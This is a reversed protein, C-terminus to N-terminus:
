LYWSRTVCLFVIVYGLVIGSYVQAPSHDGDLLRATGLLGAALVATALTFPGVSGHLLLLASLAGLLGGIGVMHASIKWRLTILTTAVLTLTAGFLMAYTAEHHSTRRLLWYTLAYYVIAMVFPGIRERATPMLIGSVMGGRMLMLMSSLPFLVTMVFIMGYTIWLMAPSLFFSLRFDLNFALLLSYLPMFLPHLLVSIWRATAHLGGRREVAAVDMMKGNAGQEREQM